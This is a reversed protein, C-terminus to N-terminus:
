PLLELKNCFIDELVDFTVVLLRQLEFFPKIPTNDFNNEADVFIAYDM